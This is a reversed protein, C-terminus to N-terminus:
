ADGRAPSLPPPPTAHPQEALARTHAIFADCRARKRNNTTDRGYVALAVAGLEEGADLLARARRCKAPDRHRASCLVAAAFEVGHELALAEHAMPLDAPDRLAPGAGVFPLDEVSIGSRKLWHHCSKCTAQNGRVRNGSRAQNRCRRYTDGYCRQRVVICGPGDPVVRRANDLRLQARLKHNINSLTTLDPTPKM